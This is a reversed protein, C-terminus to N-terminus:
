TINCIVGGGAARMLPVARKTVEVLGFVNTTFLQKWADLPMFEIPLNDSEVGANNVLVRLGDPLTISAPDTVDLREVRMDSLTAGAAPDRMTAVTDFGRAALEVAVARGIGRSAGTVVATGKPEM